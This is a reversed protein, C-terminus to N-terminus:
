SRAVAAASRRETAEAFEQFCAVLGEAFADAFVTLFEAWGSFVTFGIGINQSISHVLGNRLDYFESLKDRVDSAFQDKRVTGLNSKLRASKFMRDSLKNVGVRASLETITDWRMNNEHECLMAAVFSNIDGGVPYAILGELMTKAPGIWSLDGKPYIRSIKGTGARWYTSILKTKFTEDLHAYEQVVGKAYEEVQQRIYEEFHAALLVVASAAMTNKGDPPILPLELGAIVHKQIGDQKSSIEITTILLRLIEGQRAFEANAISFDPM